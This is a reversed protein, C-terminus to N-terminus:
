CPRHNQGGPRLEGFHLGAQRPVALQLLPPEPGAWLIITARRSVPPLRCANWSANFCNFRVVSWNLPPGCSFPCAICHAIRATHRCTPDRWAPQVGRVLVVFFAAVALAALLRLARPMGQNRTMNVGTTGIAARGRAVPVETAPTATPLTTASYPLSAFARNSALIASRCPGTLVAHTAGQPM